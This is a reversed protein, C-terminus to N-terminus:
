CPSSLRRRFATRGPWSPPGASRTPSALRAVRDIQQADGLARSRRDDALRGEFGIRDEGLDVAQLQGVLRAIQPRRQEFRGLDEGIGM